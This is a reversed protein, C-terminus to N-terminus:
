LGPEQEEPEPKPRETTTKRDAAAKVQAVRQNYSASVEGILANVNRILATREETPNLVNNAFVYDMIDEYTTVLRTRIDKSPETKAAARALMRQNTLTDYRENAEKMEVIVPTLGLTDLCDPLDGKALDNLLGRITTTEQQAPLYASGQYPRTVMELKVAATRQAEIPSKTLQQVMTTLFVLREDRIKDVEEMQATEESATSVKVNDTLLAMDQSLAQELRTPIGLANTEELSIEDPSESDGTKNFALKHFKSIFGGHEANNLKMFNYDKNRLFTGMTM